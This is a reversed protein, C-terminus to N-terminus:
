KQPPFQTLIRSVAKATDQAKKDGGTDFDFSDSGRWILKKTKPDVIDIQITQIKATDSGLPVGVSTGIGIGGSSGFTGTGLGISLGSDKPKDQTLLAYTVNFDPSTTNEVFGKQTLQDNIETQIRQASLPDDTPQPTLQTFSRLAAFDYNLDYDNKPKSSCASLLVLASLLIALYRYGM